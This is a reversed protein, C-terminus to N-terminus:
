LSEVDNDAGTFHAVLGAGNIAFLEDADADLATAIRAKLGPSPRMTGSTVNTITNIHVGIADSLAKRTIGRRALEAVLNPYAPPRSKCLHLEV